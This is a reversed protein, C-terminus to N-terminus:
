KRVGYIEFRSGAKINVSSNDTLFSFSSLKANADFLKMGVYDHRWFSGNLLSSGHSMLAVLYQATTAAPFGTLELELTSCPGDTSCVFGYGAYTQLPLSSSSSFVERINAGAGNIRGFLQQATGLPTVRISAIVKISSFKTFDISSVDLDVQQANASTTVDLLKAIAVAGLAADIKQNDANMDEMLFPDTLVWQNLALNATKNTSAM